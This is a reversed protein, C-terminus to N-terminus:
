LLFTINRLWLEIGTLGPNFLFSVATISLKEIVSVSFLLMKAHTNCIWWDGYVFRSGNLGVVKNRSM